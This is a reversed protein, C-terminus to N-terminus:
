AEAVPTGTEALSAGAYRMYDDAVGAMHAPIRAASIMGDPLRHDSMPGRVAFSVIREDPVSRLDFVITEPGIRDLWYHSRYGSTSGNGDAHHGSLTLGDHAITFTAFPEQPRLHSAREGYHREAAERRNPQEAAIDAPLEGVLVTAGFREAITRYVDLAVFDFGTANGFPEPEPQWPVLTM